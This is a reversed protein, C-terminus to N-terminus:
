FAWKLKWIVLYVLPGHAVGSVQSVTGILLCMHLFSGYCLIRIVKQPILIAIIHLFRLVRLCPHKTSLKTSIPGTTRKIKRLAGVVPTIFYLIQYIREQEDNYKSHTQRIWSQSYLVLPGLANVTVQTDSVGCQSRTLLAWIQIDPAGDHFLLFWCHCLFDTNYERLVIAILTIYISLTSSLAYESYHSIYGRGLM